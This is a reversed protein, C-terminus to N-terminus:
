LDRLTNRLEGRHGEATHTVSLWQDQEILCPCDDKMLPDAQIM